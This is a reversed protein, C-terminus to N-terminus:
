ARLERRRQALIGHLRAAEREAHRTLRDWTIRLTVWGAALTDLDRARDAEFSRRGRHHRWSDLEVIVREAPFQADVEHGACRGNVVPRPLGHRKCFRLFEDEMESKTPGGHDAHELYPDLLKAGAHTTFRARVDALDPTSLYLSNLADNVLRARKAPPTLPLCDLITRAPSTTRIGLQTRLDRPLLTRALHVKIGRPRPDGKVVVVDFSDPWINTFGWLALASRHGLAAGPPCCLVAAAARELPLRPPRGVAFVGPLLRYLRGTRVRWRIGQDDMGVSLLQRRTINGYQRAALSAVRADLPEPIESDMDLLPGAGELSV